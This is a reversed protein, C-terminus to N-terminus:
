RTRKRAFCPLLAVVKRVEPTKGRCKPHIEIPPSFLTRRVLWPNRLERGCPNEPSFDISTAADPISAHDQLKGQGGNQAFLASWAAVVVLDVLGCSLSAVSWVDVIWYRCGTVSSRQANRLATAKDCSDKLRSSKAKRM